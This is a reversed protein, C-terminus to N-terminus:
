NKPDKNLWTHQAQQSKAFKITEKDSPTLLNWLNGALQPYVHATQNKADKLVYENQFTDYFYKFKNYNVLGQLEILHSNDM